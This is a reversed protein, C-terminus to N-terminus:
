SRPLSELIRRVPAPIGAKAAEEITLWRYGTEAARPV